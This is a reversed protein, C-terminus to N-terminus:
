LDWAQINTQRRIKGDKMEAMASFYVKTGNPYTCTESYALHNGEIVSDDLHHKMSRGCIDEFMAGIAKRGKLVMPKSPPHDKDILRMEADDAYLGTWLAADNGEVVKKLNTRDMMGQM